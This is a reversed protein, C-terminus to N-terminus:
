KGKRRRPKDLLSAPRTVKRRLGIAAAYEKSGEGFRQKIKDVAVKTTRALSDIRYYIEKPPADSEIVRRLADRQSGLDGIWKPSRFADRKAEVVRIVRVANKFTAAAFQSVEPVKPAQPEPEPGAPTRIRMTLREKDLTQLNRLATNALKAKEAVISRYRKAMRQGRLAIASLKRVEQELKRAEDQVSSLERAIASATGSAKDLSKHARFSKKRALEIKRDLLQRQKFQERSIGAADFFLDSRRGCGNAIEDLLHNISSEVQSMMGPIQNDEVDGPAPPPRDISVKLLLTRMGLISRWVDDLFSYQENNELVSELRESDAILWLAFERNVDMLNETLAAHSVVNNHSGAWPM